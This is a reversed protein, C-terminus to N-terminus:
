YDITIVRWDEREALKLGENDMFKKFYERPVPRGKRFSAPQCKYGRSCEKIMSIPMYFVFEPILTTTGSYYPIALIMEPHLKTLKGVYGYVAKDGKEDMPYKGKVQVPRIMEGNGEVEKSVIFDFGKDRHPFYINWGAEAFRSAVVLEASYDNVIM